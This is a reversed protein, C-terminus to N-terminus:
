GHSWDDHRISREYAHVQQSATLEAEDMGVWAIKNLLESVRSEGARILENIAELCGQRYVGFLPCPENNRLVVAADAGQMRRRENLTVAAAAPLQVTEAESDVVWLANKRSLAFAAHLSSITGCGPLYETLIRTSRPVIPLLLKPADTVIIIEQCVTQMERIMGEIAREGDIRRLARAIAKEGGALIVGSMM